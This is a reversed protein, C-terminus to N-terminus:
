KKKPFKIKSALRKKHVALYRRLFYNVFGEEDKQLAKYYSKRKKYEIILMPYNNHWIIHNMILRGIRGNGDGFPHIKEFKYHTKAALKIPNVKEENLFKIFQNMLNKVDQWDPAIYDGVRVLYDRYKGAIDEKTNEFIEKHWKLLVNNTVKEKKNLMDLFIKYHAETEKIDKLSKNPAIKDQTIERVEELTITSGEIANTNYTFSIAIEEKEKEKISNPYYKWEKQFNEKIKRLKENIIEEKDENLKKKIEEINKPIKKGLYKEKTIIKKGKRFSDQLYFYEKKNKKRKIIRM